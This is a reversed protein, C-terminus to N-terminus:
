DSLGHSQGASEVIASGTAAAILGIYSCTLQVPLSLVNPVYKDVVEAANRFSGGERCLFVKSVAAASGSSVARSRMM